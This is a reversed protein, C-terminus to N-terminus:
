TQSEATILLPAEVAYCDTVQTASLRVYAGSARGNVVFVGICPYLPGRVTEVPTTVFMRQAAWQHPHRLANVVVHAHKRSASSQPIHVQDGTNSYTAKLVWEHWSGSDVQRPDRTEPMLASLFPYGSKTQRALTFRKSESIASLLPNIVHIGTQEFLHSWGTRRPLAALWEAQYFRVILTLPECQARLVCADSKWALAAPTTVTESPLGRSHLERAFACAVQHDALHGPASLIAVRGGTYISQVAEGWSNLPSAPCRFEPYFKQYLLPLTTGERWGGPVDSNVESVCWGSHTPHFDFRMVRVARGEGPPRNKLWIALTKRLAQPLGILIQLDPEALVELELRITEAALQEALHCLRRWERESLVLPQESLVSIDGVQTDWKEFELHLRHEIQRLDVPDLPRGVSLIPITQIGALDV